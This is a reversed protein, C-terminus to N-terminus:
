KFSRALIKSQKYQRRARNVDDTDMDELADGPQAELQNLAFALESKDMNNSWQTGQTIDSVVSAGGGNRLNGMATTLINLQDQIQKFGGDNNNNGPCGKGNKGKCTKGKNNWYGCKNCKTRKNGNKDFAYPPLNDNDTKRGDPTTNTNGNGNAIMRAAQAVIFQYKLQKESDILTAITM